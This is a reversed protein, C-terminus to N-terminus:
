AKKKKKKKKKKGNSKGNKEEEIVVQVISPPPKPQGPKIKTGHPALSYAVNVISSLDEISQIKLGKIQKKIRKNAM